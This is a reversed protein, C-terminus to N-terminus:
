PHHPGSNSLPRHPTEPDPARSIGGAFRSALRRVGPGAHSESGPGDGPRDPSLAPRVPRGGTRLYYGSRWPWAMGPPIDLRRADHFFLLLILAVGGFVALHWSSLATLLVTLILDWAKRWGPRRAYRILAAMALPIWGMYLLQLHLLHASRYPLAAFLLGAIFAARHGGGAARILRNMGIAATWFSFLFAINYGLTPIGPALIFPFAFPLIGLLLESYALTGTHPYFIPADFLSRPREVLARTEWALIWMNLLPDGRDKPLGDAMRFILPVTLVVAWLLYAIAIGANRGFGRACGMM